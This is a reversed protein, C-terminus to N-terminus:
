GNALARLFFVLNAPREALRRMFYPYWQDGFPVYVRLRYGDRILADQLATRVGYLMQFEFARPGLGLRAAHDRTRAVLRHDHTAIRPYTGHELLWAACDDFCRDVEVSSQYAVEALEDYTGKCLRLSAGVQSLRAVDARTRRLYSQVACGVNRHGAATLDEVLAVTSETVDSAEMDLTVHVGLAEAAKCINGLLEHALAAEPDDPLGLGMQTPKVSVGAPLDEAGIRELMTLVMDAAARAQDPDTVSEGLYDLTVSRGAAALARCAALGDSLDEGAVYRTAVDRAWGQRTVLRRLAANTSAQILAARLM